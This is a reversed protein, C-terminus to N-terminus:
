QRRRRALMGAAGLICVTLCSPEPVTTGIWSLSPSVLTAASGSQDTAPVWTVNDNSEYLGAPDYIAAFFPSSGSSSTSYYPGIGYNVGALKWVGSDLVFTGGGSDKDSLAAANNGYLLPNFSWALGTNYADLSGVGEVAGVGWSLKGDPAGWSWGNTTIGTTITSGRATGGGYTILPLGTPDSGTYLPAWNTFPTSVRCLELQSGSPDYYLQTIVHTSGDTSTFVNGILPGTHEATVFFDPSIATGAFIWPAGSSTVFLGEDQWGAGTLSGTPASLNRGQGSDGPGYIIVGRAFNVGALLIAICLASWAAPTKM